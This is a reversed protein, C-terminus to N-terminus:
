FVHIKVSMRMPSAGQLQMEYDIRAKINSEKKEIEYLKTIITVPFNGFLTEYVTNHELDKSFIFDSNVEGRRIIRISNEGIYITSKTKKGEGSIDEIYSIKYDTQRKELMAACTVESKEGDFDTSEIHLNVKM